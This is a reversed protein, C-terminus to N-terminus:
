KRKGFYRQFVTPNRALRRELEHISHHFQEIGRKKCVADLKDYLTSDIPASTFVGFGQGGYQDLMDGIDRLKAATLSSGDRVLKCQFIWKRKSSFPFRCVEEVVIDRGGDRSRSKGMRRISDRDFRPNEFVLDYCLQEFQDDDLSTWDCAPQELGVLATGISQGLDSVMEYVRNREREDLMKADYLYHSYRGDSVLILTGNKDVLCEELAAGRALWTEPVSTVIHDQFSSFTFPANVWEYPDDLYSEDSRKVVSECIRSKFYQSIPFWLLDNDVWVLLRGGVLFIQGGIFDTLRYIQDTAVFFEDPHVSNPILWSKESVFVDTGLATSYASKFFGIKREPFKAIQEEYYEPAESQYHSYGGGLLNGFYHDVIHPFRSPLKHVDDEYDLIKERLDRHRDEAGQEDEDDYGQFILIADALAAHIGQKAGRLILRIRTSYTEELYEESAKAMQAHDALYEAVWAADILDSCIDIHQNTKGISPLPLIVAFYDPLALGTLEARTLSGLDYEIVFDAADIDVPV